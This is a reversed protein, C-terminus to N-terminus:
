SVLLQELDWLIQGTTSLNCKMSEWGLADEKFQIVNMESKPDPSSQSSETLLSLELIM